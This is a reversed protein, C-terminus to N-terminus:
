SDVFLQKSLYLFGFAGVQLIWIVLILALDAFLGQKM